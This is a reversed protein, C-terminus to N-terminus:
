NNKISELNNAAKTPAAVIESRKVINMSTIPTSPYYIEPHIRIPAPVGQGPGINYKQM